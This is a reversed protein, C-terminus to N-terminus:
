LLRHSIGLNFYRTCFPFPCTLISCNDDLKLKNSIPSHVIWIHIGDNQSINVDIKKAKADISKISLDGVDMSKAKAAIPKMPLCDFDM